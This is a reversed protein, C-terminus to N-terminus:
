YSQPITDTGVDGGKNKGRRRKSIRKRMMIKKRECDGEGSLIM